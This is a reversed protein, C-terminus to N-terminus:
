DRGERRNLVANIQDPGSAALLKKFRPVDTNVLDMLMARSRYCEPLPKWRLPLATKILARLQEPSSERAQKIRVLKDRWEVLEEVSKFKFKRVEHEVASPSGGGSLLDTIASELKDREQEPTQKPLMQYLSTHMADELAQTTLPEGDFFQYVAHRTAMCDLIDRHTSFFFHLAAENDQELQEERQVEKLAQIEEKFFRM